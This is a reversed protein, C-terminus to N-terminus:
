GDFFGAGKELVQRAIFDFAEAQIDPTSGLTEPPATEAPPGEATRTVELTVTCPNEIVGSLM